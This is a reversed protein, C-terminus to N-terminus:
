KHLHQARELRDNIAAGIGENPFKITIIREFGAADIKQMTAFLRAAAENIDGNPSLLFQQSKDVEPLERDFLMFAAYAGKLLAVAEAVNTVMYLPTNTAYHSKLQGSTKINASSYREVHANPLIAKIDNATIGGTRHILIENESIVEAITSELGVSCDGGDLIYPIKGSMGKLVHATSTPSVYGFMNASPAVLALNSERLLGLLLDHNPIRVAVKNSGATILDSVNNKKPLLLTFPGPMFAEALRLSTPDLEAFDNIKEIAHTHLILPNFSPRKKTEFIKIIAKENAANGALGYVTETPVAVLEGANLWHTATDISNGVLTQM